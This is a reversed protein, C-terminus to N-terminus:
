SDNGDRERGFRSVKDLVEQYEPTPKLDDTLAWRLLRRADANDGRAKLKLYIHTLVPYSENITKGIRLHREAKTEERKM